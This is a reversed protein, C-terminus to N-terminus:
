KEYIVGYSVFITDLNILINKAVFIFKNLLTFSPIYFYKNTQKNTQLM